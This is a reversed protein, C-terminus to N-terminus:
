FDVIQIEKKDILFELRSYFSKSVEIKGKESIRLVNKLHLNKAVKQWHAGAIFVPKSYVDSYLGANENKETLITVAQTDMAPFGTRPDLLHHYRKKDVEFYRQYDGSTGIAEGDLLDLIAIPGPARPHQIGIRWPRGYKNGLVLINGGINILANKINSEKLIVAARDLAWGKLYGGFDLAVNANKSTLINEEITLHQISPRKKLYADIKEKEPLESKFEDSHFGWLAILSGIGPDFLYQSKQSLEQANLIFHKLERDLLFPSNKQINSNLNTLQSPQWAHYQNHIRQFEKLVKQIAREGIKPDTDAVLVEIRTGFIYAEKEVIPPRGCAIFFFCVSLLLFARTM